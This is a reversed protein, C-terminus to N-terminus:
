IRGPPSLLAAILRQVPASREAGKRTLIGVPQEFPGGVLELQSLTGARVENAVTKRPVLACGVGVEVARKVLEVNDFEHVIHVQTGADKLLRDVARRVPSGTQMAVFPQGHLRSLGLRKMRAWPHKGPFIAVIRDKKFLHITLHQHPEPFAVLGLDAQGQLVAHYVESSQLYNLQLDVAPYRRLFEAMHTPLEYLGVMLSAVIRLTGTVEGPPHQLLREVRQYRWLIDKAGEYLLQGSRTLAMQRGHRELLQRSFRAELAKLHQSIASQTLFNRRGTETFSQTEVLDCFIKLSRDM